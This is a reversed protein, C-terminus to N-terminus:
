NWTTAMWDEIEIDEDEEFPVIMWSEITPEEETFNTEFPATMWSELRLEEEGLSSKFPTAMWSEIGLEEEYIVELQEAFITRAVVPAEYVNWSANKSAWGRLDHMWNEFRSSEGKVNAAFHAVQNDQNSSVREIRSTRQGYAVTAMAVLTISLILKTTKM